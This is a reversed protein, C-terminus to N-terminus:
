YNGFFLLFLTSLSESSNEPLFSKDACVNELESKSLDLIQSIQTLDDSSYRLLADILLKQKDKICYFNTRVVPTQNMFFDEM